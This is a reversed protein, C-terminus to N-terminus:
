GHSDEVLRLGPAPAAGEEVTGPVQSEPDAEVAGADAPLRLASVAGIIEVAMNSDVILGVLLRERGGNKTTIVSAPQDRYVGLPHPKGQSSATGVASAAGAITLAIECLATLAMPRTLAVDAMELAVRHRDMLAREM